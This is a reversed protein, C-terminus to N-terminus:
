SPEELIAAAAAFAGNAAPIGCYVASQLIMEKLMAAGMGHALAARVHMRFEDERNLAILMAMTLLRRTVQDLGPRTWIEGWAVRTILDQFDATFETTRATAREVHADGLVDRRTQMGLAHREADEM